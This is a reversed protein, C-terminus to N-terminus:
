KDYHRNNTSPDTGTPNERAASIKNMSQQHMMRFAKLLYFDAIHHHKNAISICELDAWLCQLVTSRIADAIETPWPVLKERIIDNICVDLTRAYLDFDLDIMVRKEESILHGIEFGSAEAMKQYSVALDGFLLKSAMVVCAAFIVPVDSLHSSSRANHVVFRDFISVAMFITDKKSSPDIPAYLKHWQIAFYRLSEPSSEMM